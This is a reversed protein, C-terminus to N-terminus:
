GIMEQDSDSDPEAVASGLYAQTLQDIDLDVKEPDIATRNASATNLHHRAMREFGAFAEACMIQELAEEKKSICTEGCPTTLFNAKTMPRSESPSDVQEAGPGRVM